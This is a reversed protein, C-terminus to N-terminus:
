KEKDGKKWLWRFLAILVLIILIWTILVVISGGFLGTGMMGYFGPCSSYDFNGPNQGFFRMIEKSV